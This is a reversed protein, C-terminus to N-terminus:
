QLPVGHFWFDHDDAPMADAFGARRLLATLTDNAPAALRVTGGHMRAQARLSEILQLVSLDPTALDAVDLVLDGDPPVVRLEDVVAGINAMSLNAPVCFASNM